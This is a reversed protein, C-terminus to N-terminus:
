SVGEVASEEIHYNSIERIKNNVEESALYNYNVWSNIYPLKEMPFAVIANNYKEGNIDFSGSRLIKIDVDNHDNGIRETFPFQVAALRSTAKEITCVEPWDGMLMHILAEYTNFGSSAISLSTSGSVRPNIEIIYYKNKMYVMEVEIAGCISLSNCMKRLKFATGRFDVEAEPMSVSHRVQTFPFSPSPHTHGKWIIPQFYSFTGQGIIEVSCLQGDLFKEVVCNGDFPAELFQMLDADSLFYRIGNGLCDWLPKTLLPYGIEECRQRIFDKYARVETGRKNLLDGDLLFGPPTPIDYRGVAQKTEWKNAFVYTTIPDHMIMPIGHAALRRKIQADRISNEDPISLSIASDAGWALLAAVMTDVSVDEALKEYSGPFDNHGCYGDTYFLRADLGHALLLPAVQTLYPSTQQVEVSRIFAVKRM